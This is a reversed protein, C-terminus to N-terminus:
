TRGADNGEPAASLMEVFAAIAELTAAPQDVHPSHACAELVV